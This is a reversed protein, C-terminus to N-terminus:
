NGWYTWPKRRQPRKPPVKAAAATKLEAVKARTQEADRTQWLTRWGDLVARAAKPTVRDRDDFLARADGAAVARAVEEVSRGTRKALLHEAPSFGYDENVEMTM